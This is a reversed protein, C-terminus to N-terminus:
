EPPASAEVVERIIEKARKESSPMVSLRHTGSSDDVACGIGNERLCSILMDRVDVEAGSWVERTAEDADFDESVYDHEPAFEDDGDNAKLQKDAPKNTDPPSSDSDATASGSDQRPGSLQRRVDELVAQAANHDRAHIIIAFVPQALGPLVGVDRTREHYSINAADLAEAIAGSIGSDTGTWLIEPADSDQVIGGLANTHMPADDLSAVLAVDCDNCRTFGARYELKCEPCFMNAL